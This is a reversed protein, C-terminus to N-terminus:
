SKGSGNVDGNTITNTTVGALVIDFVDGFQWEIQVGAYYPHVAGNTARRLVM